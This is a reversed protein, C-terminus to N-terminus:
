VGCRICPQDLKFEILEDIIGGNSERGVRASVYKTVDSLIDLADRWWADVFLRALDMGLEINRLFVEDTQAACSMRESYAHKLITFPLELTGQEAMRNVVQQFCYHLECNKSPVALLKEFLTLECVEQAFETTLNTKCIQYVIDFAIGDPLKRINSVAKPCKTVVSLAYVYLTNPLSM